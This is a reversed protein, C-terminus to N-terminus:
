RKISALFDLMSARLEDRERGFHAKRHDNPCVAVVNQPSDAGDESLPVVHHTELYLRDDPTRFGEAKCLECKGRARELVQRRVEPSRQYVESEVKRKGQPRIEEAASFQDVYPSPLHGRSLRCAGSTTDYATVSWPLSDLLRNRVRSAKADAGAGQRRLGDCVIVRLPLREKWATEVAHDFKRARSAWAPKAAGRADERLNLTQFIEGDNEQMREFWINLVVLKGPEVFAWEYCYKPNVAAKDAGGKFNAWDSVDVGAEGVLDIVRHFERPRIEEIHM